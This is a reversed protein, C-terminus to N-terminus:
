KKEHAVREVESWVRLLNGGCVKSIENENYGMKLLAAILNPYDSVDKLGIPLTDGVGDFDSGIGVFDIGVLRRVHDVHAAVEEVTAYPRPNQRLYERKFQRAQDSQQNWGRRRVSDAVASDINAYVVRISDNIFESAFSIQIVGGKKALAVILEDSMNREFGPTFFRCSSHSAIVPARSLRIAQAAASDTLHSIDVMIGLRNMEAIVQKGFPSLGNWHREPDYSADCLHNWKAHALTIYRIGLAHFYSLNSIDGLLPAGNEMGMALLIKGSDKKREIDSPSTVIEFKDPWSSAMKRVAAIMQEAREKAKPSGEMQSSIYISMFPVDLGGARARVYDFNGTLDKMSVDYWRRVLLSPLDIHTDVLTLRNSLERAQTLLTSDANRTDDGAHVTFPLAQFMLLIASIRLVGPM